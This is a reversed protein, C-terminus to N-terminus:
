SARREAQADAPFLGRYIDSLLSAVVAVGAFSVALGVIQFIIWLISPLEGGIKDVIIYHVVGFPLYCAVLCAFLRWYNGAMLDWAERLSIPREIAAAPFALSVRASALALAIYGAIAILATLFHPPVAAILVLVFAGVFVTLGIKVATLFFTSWGPPILTENTTQGLLIFRHWRVIFVTGFVAFGGARVLLALIMGFWGGGGALWAVIEVGVLIAFPLWALDVALRANDMVATYAARVSAAIDIKQESPSAMVSM